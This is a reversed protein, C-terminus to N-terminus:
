IGVSNLPTGGASTDAMTDSDVDSTSLLTLHEEGISATSFVQRHDDPTPQDMVSLKPVNGELVCQDYSKFSSLHTSAWHSMELSHVPGGGQERTPDSLPDSYELSPSFKPTVMMGKNFGPSPKLNSTALKGDDEKNEIEEAYPVDDSM